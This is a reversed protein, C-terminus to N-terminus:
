EPHGLRWGVSKVARGGSTVLILGTRHRRRSPPPFRSAAPTGRWPWGRRHPRWLHDPRSLEPLARSLPWWSTRISSCISCSPASWAAVAAVVHHHRNAGVPVVVTKQTLGQKLRAAACGVGPGGSVSFPIEASCISRGRGGSSAPRTSCFWLVKWGLLFGCARRWAMPGRGQRGVRKPCPKWCGDDEELVARLLRLGGCLLPSWPGFTNVLKLASIELWSTRFSSISTPTCRRSDAANPPPWRGRSAGGSFGALTFDM